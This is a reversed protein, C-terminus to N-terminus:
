RSTVSMVNAVGMQLKYDLPFDLHTALFSSVDLERVTKADTYGCSYLTIESIMGYDPVM